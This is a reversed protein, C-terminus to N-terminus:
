RVKTLCVSATTWYRLRALDCSCEVRNSIGRILCAGVLRAADNSSYRASLSKSILRRCYMASFSAFFFPPLDVLPALLDVSEFDAELLVVLWCGAAAGVLGEAFAGKISRNSDSSSLWCVMAVCGIICCYGWCVPKWTGCCVAFM